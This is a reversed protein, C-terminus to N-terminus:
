WLKMSGMEMWMEWGDMRGVRGRNKEGVELVREVKRWELRLRDEVVMEGLGIGEKMEVRKEM